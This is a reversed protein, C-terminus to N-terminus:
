AQAGKDDEPLKWYKRLLMTILLATFLVGVILYAGHVNVIGDTLLKGDIGYMIGMYLCTVALMAFGVICNKTNTLIAYYADLWICYCGYVGVGLAVCGLLLMERGLWAPSAHFMWEAFVFSLAYIVMSLLAYKYGLFRVREKTDDYNKEKGAMTGKGFLYVMGTLVLAIAGVCIIEVM